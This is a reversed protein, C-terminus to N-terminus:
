VEHAAHAEKALEERVRRAEIAWPEASTAARIRERMREQEARRRSGFLVDDLVASLQRVWFMIAVFVLLGIM